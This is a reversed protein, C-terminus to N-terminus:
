GLTAETPQRAIAEDEAEESAPATDVAAGGSNARMMATTAM